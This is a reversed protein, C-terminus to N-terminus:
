RRDERKRTRLAALAFVTTLYPSGFYVPFRGMRYYACPPWSGDDRQAGTLLVRRQEQGDSLALLDATLTRLALDLSGDPARALDQAPATAERRLFAQRVPGALDATTQPFRACLRSVAYLFADPSPYYRTGNLYRGSEAHDALYRTTAEVVSRADATLPGAGLQITYLANACAVADHKRGRPLTAPELGDEWYTMLVQPHLLAGDAPENHHPASGPPPAAARLLDAAHAELDGASLLRHEHLAAAALGTCDTDAPFGNAGPFFRYRQQWRASEIQRGLRLGSEKDEATGGPPLLMLAVMATFAEDALDFGPDTGFRERLIARAQGGTFTDGFSADLSLQASPVGGHEMSRDLFRVARECPAPQM